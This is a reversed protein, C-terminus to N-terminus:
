RMSTRISGLVDNKLKSYIASMRKADERSMGQLVLQKEFAGRTRRIRWGLIIWLVLLSGLLQAISFAISLISSARM